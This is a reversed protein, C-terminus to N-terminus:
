CRLRSGGSDCRTIRVKTRRSLLPIIRGETHLHCSRMLEYSKGVAKRRCRGSRKFRYHWQRPAQIHPASM